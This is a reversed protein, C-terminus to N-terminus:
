LFLSAIIQLSGGILIGVLGYAMLIFNVKQWRKYSETEEADQGAVIHSDGLTIGPTITFKEGKFQRTVDVAILIAGIMTFLVGVSNVIPQTLISSMM